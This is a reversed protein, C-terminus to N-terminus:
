HTFHVWYVHRTVSSHTLHNKRSSVTNRNYPHACDYPARLLAYSQVPCLYQALLKPCLKLYDYYKHIFNSCFRKIYWRSIAESLPPTKQCVRCVTLRLHKCQTLNISGFQGRYYQNSMFSRAQTVGAGIINTRGFVLHGTRRFSLGIINSNPETALSALACEMHWPCLWISQTLHFNRIGDTWFGTPM